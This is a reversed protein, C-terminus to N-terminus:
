EHIIGSGVVVSEHSQHSQSMSSRIDVTAGASRAAGDCVSSLGGGGGDMGAWGVLFSEDLQQLRRWEPAQM